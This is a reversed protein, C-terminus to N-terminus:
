YRTVVIPDYTGDKLTFLDTPSHTTATYFPAAAYPENKGYPTLARGYYAFINTAPGSIVISQSVM